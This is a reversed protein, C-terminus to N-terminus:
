AHHLILIESLCVSHYVHVRYKDSSAVWKSQFLITYITIYILVNELDNLLLYKYCDRARHGKNAYCVAKVSIKHSLKPTNLPAPLLSSIFLNISADQVCQCYLQQVLTLTFLSSHGGPLQSKAYLNNFGLQKRM